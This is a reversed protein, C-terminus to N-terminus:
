DWTRLWLSFGSPCPEINLSTEDRRPKFLRNMVDSIEKSGKEKQQLSGASDVM